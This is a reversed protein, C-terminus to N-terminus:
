KERELQYINLADLLWFFENWADTEILVEALESNTKEGIESIKETLVRFILYPPAGLEGSMESAKHLDDRTIDITLGSLSFLQLIQQIFDKPDESTTAALEQLDSLSFELPSIRGGDKLSEIQAVRYAMSGKKGNPCFSIHYIEQLRSYKRM